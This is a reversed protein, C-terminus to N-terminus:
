TQCLTSISSFPDYSKPCKLYQAIACLRALAPLNPPKNIYRVAPAARCLRVNKQLASKLLSASGKFTSAAPAAHLLQAMDGGAQSPVNTQLHFTLKAPTSSNGAVVNTELVSSSIQTQASWAAQKCLTIRRQQLRPSAAHSTETPDSSAQPGKVWCHTQWTGAPLRELFLVVIRSRVRQEAMLTAFANSAAAQLQQQSPDNGHISTQQTAPTESHVGEVTSAAAAAAVATVPVTRSAKVPKGVCSSVHSEILKRPVTTECIPCTRFSSAQLVAM